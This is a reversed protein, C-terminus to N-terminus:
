WRRMAIVGGTAVTCEVAVSNSALEQIELDTFAGSSAFRSNSKAARQGADRRSSPNEVRSSARAGGDSRAFLDRGRQAVVPGM